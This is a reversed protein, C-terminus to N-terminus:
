EESLGIEKGPLWELTGHTGVHVIVHADFVERLYRYFAIYQHPCVLDTSHYLEEAKEEFARPPQLGIFLNGNHIGPILIEGDATMITGPAEGWDNQVKERVSEPLATLWTRYQDASVTRECRSLMEAPSLFRADNTLGETIKRIIEQGNAFDFDLNLGHNKMAVIMNFASEPTDLGYACGIMDARPPMNHLIIAVRKQPMPTSRLRAYGMAMKAIRESRGPIPVNKRRPGEPTNVMESCSFTVSIIQGDFEPQYVNSCLMMGDLGATSAKWQDYNFFTTMAQFVPVGLQAFVSVDTGLVATGPSSLATQSHGVTVILLDSSCM